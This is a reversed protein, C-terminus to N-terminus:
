QVIEYTNPDFENEPITGILGSSIDRVKLVQYLGLTQQLTSKKGEMNKKLVNLKSRIQKKTDNKDPLFRSLRKVEADSVTAGSVAKMFEAKLAEIQADFEIRKAPKLGYASLLADQVVGTVGRVGVGEVDALIDDAARITGAMGALNDAQGVSLDAPEGNVDVFSGPPLQAGVEGTASEDFEELQTFSQSSYESRLQSKKFGMIIGGNSEMNDPTLPITRDHTVTLAKKNSESLVAVQQGTTPDIRIDTILAVHGWRSSENTLVIDGVQPLMQGESFGINEVAARKSDISDGIENILSQGREDLGGIFRLCWFDKAQLGAQKGGNNYSFNQPFDQMLAGTDIGNAGGVETSLVPVAPGDAPNDPVYWQKGNVEVRSYDINPSLVGEQRDIQVEGTQKNVFLSVIDGTRKDIETSRFEFPNDKGYYRIGNFEVFENPSINPLIDSFLQGMTELSDKFTEDEQAKKRTAFLSASTGSQYGSLNDLTDLYGSPIDELSVGAGVMADITTSATDRQYQEIEQMKVINDLRRSEAKELDEKQARLADLKKSFLELDASEKAMRVEQILAEGQQRISTIEQQHKNDLDTLYQTGASTTNLAGMRALQVRAAGRTQRQATEAEGVQQEVQRRIAEERAAAQRDLLDQQQDFLDGVQDGQAPAQASTDRGDFRTGRGGSRNIFSRIQGIDLTRPDVGFESRLAGSLGPYSRELDQIVQPNTKFQIGKIEPAGMRKEIQDVEAMGDEVQRDIADTTIPGTATQIQEELLQRREPSAELVAPVDAGEGFAGDAMAAGGEQQSRLVDSLAQQEQAQRTEAM